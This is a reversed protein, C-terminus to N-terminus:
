LDAVTAVMAMGAASRVMEGRRCKELPTAGPLDCCKQAEKCM